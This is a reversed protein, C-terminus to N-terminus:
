AWVGRLLVPMGLTGKAGYVVDHAGMQKLSTKGRNIPSVGEMSGGVEDITV